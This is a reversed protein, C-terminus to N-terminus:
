LEEKEKPIFLQFGTVSNLYNNMFNYYEPYNIDINESDEFDGIYSKFNDMMSVLVDLYELKELDDTDLVNLFKINIDDKIIDTYGCNHLHVLLIHKIGDSLAFHVSKLKKSYRIHDKIVDAKISEEDMIGSPIGITTLIMKRLDNIKDSIEDSITDTELDQAEIQGKDGFDPIVKVQGVRESITKIIEDNSKGDASIKLSKNIMNEYTKAIELADQPKTQGPVGVSVLRTKLANNIFSIPMMTELLKLEELLGLSGYIISRGSRFYLVKDDLADVKVKIRSSPLSFHAFSSAPLTVIKGHESKIFHSIDGDRWIPVLNTINVDDHINVIGRKVGADVESYNLTELRLFHEGYLLLDAAIDIIHRHINFEKSFEKALTTAPIDKSGDSNNITISFLEQSNGTPNIADELIRDIILHTFYFEKIKDIKEILEKKNDNVNFFEIMLNKNVNGSLMNNAHTIPDDAQVWNMLKNVTSNFGLM